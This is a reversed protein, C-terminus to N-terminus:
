VHARGIEDCGAVLYRATRMDYDEMVFIRGRFEASRSKEWIDRIVEQGARDAPHAKGAFIIQVPRDPDAVIRTLRDLDAFLLNARKYTAFRRAFGITLVGPDFFRETERLSEPSEGHRGLQRRLSSRLFEGLAVKQRDHAEWWGRADVAGSRFLM